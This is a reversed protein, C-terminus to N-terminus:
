RLPFLFMKRIAHFTLFESCEEGTLDRLPWAQVTVTLDIDPVSPVFVETAAEIHKDNCSLSKWIVASM